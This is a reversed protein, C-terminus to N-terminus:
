QMGRLPPGEEQAALRPGGRSVRVPPAVRTPAAVAHRDAAALIAAAASLSIGMYIWIYPWPKSLNVFMNSVALGLMGFVIAIMYPRMEASAVEAAARATVVAQYFIAIFALLGVIGLNFWLDLYYNHTVYVFRTNYVNWGFGTLFTLPEAMMHSLTTAWINTRGSSVDYMSFATSQGVLRELVVDGVNPVAVSVLACLVVSATVGGLVWSAVRSLPLFRRCLFCASGYGLVIGVYAGRSVTLILVALSALVCAYWWARLPGRSSIAVVVMTPLLCVLLAGTENAHGFMGFVRDAEGGETGVRVGLSTLGAVDTLTLISSLGIACMLTRTLSKFDAESQVAYFVTFCFLAADYLVSKLLIGSQVIDYSTYHVILCCTIFSLTSYVLWVAFAAHLLPLRMRLQGGSLAMRFFMAMAIVYLVANKPSLGPGLSMDRALIDSVALVWILLMFLWRM